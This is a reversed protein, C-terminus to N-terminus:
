GQFELTCEIGSVATCIMERISGLTALEAEKQVQVYFILEPNRPPLAGDAKEQM